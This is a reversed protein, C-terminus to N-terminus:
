NFGGLWRSDLKGCDQTPHGHNEILPLAANLVRTVKDNEAASLTTSIEAFHRRLSSEPDIAALIYNRYGEVIVQRGSQREIDDELTFYRHIIESMVHVRSKEPHSRENRLTAQDYESMELALPLASIYPMGLSEMLFKSGKGSIVPPLTALKFFQMFLSQPLVGMEVFLIEGQKLQKLRKELSQDDLGSIQVSDGRLEPLLARGNGFVPIVIGSPFAQPKLSQIELLAQKLHQHGENSRFFHREIGYWPASPHLEIHKLLSVLGQGRRQTDEATLANEVFTKWNGITPLDLLPGLTALESIDSVGGYPSRFFSNAWGQPSILLFTEAKLFELDRFVYPDPIDVGGSISLRVTTLDSKKTMFEKDSIMAPAPADFLGQVHKQADEVGRGRTSYIIEFHGEFGLKQLRKMVLLTNAQHGSGSADDFFVRITPISQLVQQLHQEQNPHAHLPLRILFVVLAYVVSYRLAILKM